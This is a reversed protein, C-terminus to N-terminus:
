CRAVDDVIIILAIILRLVVGVVVVRRVHIVIPVIWAIIGIPISRAPIVPDIEVCVVIVVGPMIVMMLMIVIMIM